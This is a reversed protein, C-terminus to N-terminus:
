LIDDCAFLVDSDISGCVEMSSGLASVTDGERAKCINSDDLNLFARFYKFLSKNWM